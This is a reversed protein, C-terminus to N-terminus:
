ADDAEMEKNICTSCVFSGEKDYEEQELENLVEIPELCENCNM